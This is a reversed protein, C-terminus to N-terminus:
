TTSTTKSAVIEEALSRAWRDAELVESLTGPDPKNTPREDLVKQSIRVIDGFPIDGALYAEVAVEDAANLCCGSTGGEEVCRFGLELSPFREFDPAEFTLRSFQQLDFGALKSPQRDPHHLAYHITGRMDPPGMQAIVSGDVFEVMSHVLSQPHVVVEMRDRDLGFLHHLEIIEFAKNILTASGITIRPGMDWTPHALAKEQPANEMDALSTERFPGGSATLLVKRICALDEGRLCQEIASHESDVPILRGGHEAITDILLDGAIVLSEKNALALTKGAKCLAFSAELGARGMVGHVAVDYEAAAILELQAEPGSFLTTGPSLHPRLADAAAPDSLALFPAGTQAAQDRLLEWSSNAALGAVRLGSAPDSVLDLTQTGISGTSGLVLIPKVPDNNV